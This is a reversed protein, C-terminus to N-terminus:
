APSIDTYYEHTHQPLLNPFLEANRTKDMSASFAMRDDISDWKEIIIFHVSGDNHTDPHQAMQEPTMVKSLAEVMTGPKARFIQRGRFGKARAYQPQMDLYFQSVADAKGPRASFTIVFNEM